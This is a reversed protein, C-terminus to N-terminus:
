RKSKPPKGQAMLWFPLKWDPIWGSPIKERMSKNLGYTPLLFKLSRISPPRMGNVDVFDYEDALEAVVQYSGTKIKSNPDNFLAVVAKGTFRPSEAMDLPLGVYKDWDGNAVSQVTRETNVVGPWLSVVTMDLDHNAFEISMDKVMRDVGAKGVGYAVNFTYTLGGFSSIMVILPRTTSKRLLPMAEVTTQYHSRLGVTHIPDWGVSAPQEWFPRQLNAVGADPPLRFANNVLIDIKGHRKEITAVLSKVAEDKEHNCVIPIGVGKRSIEDATAQLDLATTGTVYVTAGANGLELAIGKGIGRSAGTVLCVVGSLSKEAENRTVSYLGLSFRNVYHKINPGYNLVSGGHTAFASTRYAFANTVAQWRGTWSLAALIICALYFYLLNM